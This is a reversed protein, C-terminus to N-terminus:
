IKFRLVLKRIFTTHQEASQVKAVVYMIFWFDLKQLEEGGGEGGNKVRGDAKKSIAKTIYTFKQKLLSSM